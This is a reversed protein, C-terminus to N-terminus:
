YAIQSGSLRRLIREERPVGVIAFRIESGVEARASGDSM